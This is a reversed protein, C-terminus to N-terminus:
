QLKTIEKCIKNVQRDGLNGVICHLYTTHGLPALVTHTQNGVFYPVGLKDSWASWDTDASNMPSFTDVIAQKIPESTSPHQPLQSHGLYFFSHSTIFVTSLSPPPKLPLIFLFKSIQRYITNTILTQM